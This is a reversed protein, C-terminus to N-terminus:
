QMRFLVRTDQRYPGSIYPYTPETTYVAKAPAKLVAPATLAAQALSAQALPRWNWASAAAAAPAAALPAAANPVWALHFGPPAASQLNTAKNM